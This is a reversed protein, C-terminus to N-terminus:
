RTTPLVPEAHQLHVAVGPVIGSTTDTVRGVITGQGTQAFANATILLLFTACRLM